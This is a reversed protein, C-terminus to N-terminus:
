LSNKSKIYSFSLMLWFISSFWTSIISGSPKIPMMYGLIISFLFLIYIRHNTIKLSDKIVYFVFFSLILLGLIGQESLIELIYYHPHTSCGDIKGAAKLFDKEFLYYYNKCKVRFQKFGYGGLPKEKFMVGATKYHMGWHTKNIFNSYSSVPSFNIKIKKDNKYDEEHLLVGIPYDYYRLKLQDSFNIGIASIIFILIGLFIFKKRLHKIFVFIFFNSILFIFLSSREGTIFICFFLLGLLLLLVYDNRKNFNYFFTIILFGFSSLYSGMILEQNFIGAYREYINKSSNMLGPEFGLLNVDFKYQYILDILIFILFILYFKSIKNLEFTVFRSFYKFALPLILFRIYYLSKDFYLYNQNIINNIIQFALYLLLFTIYLRNEEFFNFNKNSLVHIIFVINLIFISINLIASGFIFLIPLSIIIYFFFNELIQNSKISM